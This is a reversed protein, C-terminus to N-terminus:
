RTLERNPPKVTSLYQQQVIIVSFITLSILLELLTFGKLKM